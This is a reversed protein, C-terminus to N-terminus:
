ILDVTGKIFSLILDVSVKIFNLIQTALMVFM